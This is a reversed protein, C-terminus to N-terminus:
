SDSFFESEYILVLCFFVLTYHVNILYKSFFDKQTTEKKTFYVRNICSLTKFSGKYNFTEIFFYQM